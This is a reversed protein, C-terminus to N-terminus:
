VISTGGMPNKQPIYDFGGYNLENSFKSQCTAYSHDCGPYLKVAVPPGPNSFANAISSSVRNVVIRTGYHEVVYSLVGDPARLMGGVFFGDPKTAAEAITLAKGAIVSVNGDTAVAEPSIGCGRGYLPHRCSKQFRGRLGPRRLSTYISEFILKAHTDGPQTSTLRGKWIIRSSTPRKRTVILGVQVESWSTLLADVLEHDLPLRIEMSAKSLDPKIDAGGRGVAEPEYTESNHMQAVDASTILWQQAGRTLQYLDVAKTM